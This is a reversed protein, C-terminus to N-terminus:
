SPSIFAQMQSLAEICLDSYRNPLGSVSFLVCLLGMLMTMPFGLAFINLSPAARSLVGFTLNVMLMAIIIPLALMFAAAFMWGFRVILDMLPLQFVGSGVPFLLFSESFIGISVIHGDLALFLLTSYILLWQGLIPNSNGNAPDNMIAMALGMQMSMMAGLLTFVSVLISLFLAMMAGVLLQEAALLAGTISLPDISPMVPLLPAILFSLVLSLLIRVSPPIYSSSIFPMLNFAGMFRCFPWWVLGIMSGLAESSLSLLM